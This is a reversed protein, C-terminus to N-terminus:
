GGPPQLCFKTYNRQGISARAAGNGYPGADCQVSGYTGGYARSHAGSDADSGCDSRAYGDPVLV